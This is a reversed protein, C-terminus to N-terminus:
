NRVIRTTGNDLTPGPPIGLLGCLQRRWQNYLRTRDAVESRNRQWVAAKDTDLNDAARTIGIELGALTALYGAVIAEEEPRLTNLRHALTQYRGSTVQAYAADSRDDPTTDGLMPYGMFRRADAQQQLTLM